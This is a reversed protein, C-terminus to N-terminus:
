GKRSSLGSFGRIGGGGGLGQNGGYNRVIMKENLMSRLEPVRPAIFTVSGADGGNGGSAGPGGPGGNGGACLRTGAGGGGGAGGVGGDGADGGSVDIIFSGHITIDSIYLSLNIGKGGSTGGTGMLGPGGDSCPSSPSSGGRGTRGQLGHVGKGDIKAGRYIVVSKAHIFNEQKLGNLIIRSSDRMILSDVVLIDTGKLEYIEKPKLELKSLRVQAWSFPTVWMWFIILGVRTM